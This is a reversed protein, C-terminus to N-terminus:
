TAGGDRHAARERANGPSHDGGWHHEDRVGLWVEGLPSGIGGAGSRRGCSRRGPTQARAPVTVLGTTLGGPGNAQPGGVRWPRRLLSSKEM